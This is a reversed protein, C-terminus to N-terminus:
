RERGVLEIQKKRENKVEDMNQPFMRNILTVGFDTAWLGHYKVHPSASIQAMTRYFRARVPDAENRAILNLEFAINRSRHYNAKGDIWEQMAEFSETVKACPIFGTLELLHEGYSICFGVIEKKTKTEYISIFENRLEANDAIKGLPRQYAYIDM